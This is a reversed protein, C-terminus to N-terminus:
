REDCPSWSFRQLNVDMCLTDSPMKGHRYEVVRMTTQSVGRLSLDSLLRGEKESLYQLAARVRSRVTADLYLTRINWIRGVFVITLIVIAATCAISIGRRWKQMLADILSRLFAWQVAFSLKSEGWLRPSFTYPIEVIHTDQPSRVLLDFLIKYGRPTLLPAIREFLSRDIAFFGSMPDHVRLRLLTITAWTALRSLFKRRQNWAGTGGGPIYRSAVAIGRKANVMDYLTTLLASDHQGDADMVALVSGRAAHFGAIVASSLGREDQRRIVRVSPFTKALEQAKRWTGDPSDDDVVIIEHPINTLIEEIRPLLLPLNEAENYTPLILSLVPPNYRQHANRAAM